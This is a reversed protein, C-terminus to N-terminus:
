EAPAVEEEAPPIEEYIAIDLTEDSLPANSFDDISNEIRKTALDLTELYENLEKETIAGENAFTEKGDDEESHIEDDAIYGPRSRDLYVDGTARYITLSVSTTILAIVVAFVVLLMLNRGGNIAAPEEETEKPKRKFIM